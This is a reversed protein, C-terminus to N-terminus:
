LFFVSNFFKLLILTEMHVGQTDPVREPGLTFRRPGCSRCSLSHSAPSSWVHPASCNWAPVWLGWPGGELVDRPEPVSRAARLAPRLHWLGWSVGVHISSLHCCLFLKHFQLRAWLISIDMDM